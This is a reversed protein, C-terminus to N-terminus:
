VEDADFRLDPRIARRVGLPDAARRALGRLKTRVDMPTM